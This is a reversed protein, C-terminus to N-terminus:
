SGVLPKIADKIIKFDIALHSCDFISQGNKIILIQPSEHEVAYTYAIQNSIERYSLLDLFYSKSPVLDAQNWNRELRDLVMRSTSCRTSHKFIIVPHKTSEDKIKELQALNTLQNWNIGNNM